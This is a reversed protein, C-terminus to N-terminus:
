YVMACLAKYVTNNTENTASWSNNKSHMLAKMKAMQDQPIKVKFTPSMPATQTATTQAWSAPALLGFSLATSLIMVIKPLNRVISVGKFM